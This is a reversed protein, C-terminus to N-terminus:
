KATKDPEESEGLNGIISGGRDGEYPRRSPRDDPSGGRFLSLATGAGHAPPGHSAFRPSPIRRRVSPRSAPVLAITGVGAASEARGNTVHVFVKDSSGCENRLAVQGSRGQGKWSVESDNDELEDFLITFGAFRARTQLRRARGQCRRRLLGRRGDDSGTTVAAYVDRERDTALGYPPRSGDSLRVEHLGGRGRRWVRRREQRRQGWLRGAFLRSCGFDGLISDFAVIEKRQPAAVRHRLDSPEKLVTRAQCRSLCKRINSQMWSRRGPPGAPLSLLIFFARSPKSGSAARAASATAPEARNGCLALLLEGIPLLIRACLSATSSPLSCGRPLSIGTEDPMM